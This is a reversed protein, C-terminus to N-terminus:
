AYFTSIVCTRCESVVVECFRAHSFLCLVIHAKMDDSRVLIFSTMIVPHLELTLYLFVSVDSALSEFRKLTDVILHYYGRQVGCKESSNERTSLSAKM